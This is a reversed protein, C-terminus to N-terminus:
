PAWTRQLPKMALSTLWYVPAALIVNYVAPLLLKRVLHPDTITSLGFLTGVAVFLVQGLLTLAFVSIATLLLNDEIRDRIKVAVYAAATLSIAWLGLPSGGLLDVLLGATFAVLLAAEAELYRDVALVTLLVLNPPAGLPQLRGPAFVTTQIVVAVIVFGLALIMVRARM